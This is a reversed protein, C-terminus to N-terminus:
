LIEIEGKDGDIRVRDGNKLLKTINNVGVVTPKGLERAIIATHSLLSGKEAIIGKASAILFVWGPDTMKTVLIKGKSDIHMTPKDVILVEGEAIGHSCAVGSYKGAGSEFSMECVNSPNKDVVRESFVLRSYAPLASFMNYKLKRENILKKLKLFEGNATEEIEDYYLWFIDDKENILGAISLNKGIQLMLMRMIGYLRSRNLRSKERNKIGIAAKKAFLGSLGRLRKFDINEVSMQINENAYQIIRNILLVPDTRFTKSELKLEEINRDGFIDVYAKISTTFDDNKENSYRYYDENTKIDSLESIRNQSKAAQSINILECIPKLSEIDSIKSIYQSTMIEYNEPNRKKLRSKLLGTFIFSYMDNALTIDWEDTAMKKLSQYYEILKKNDDTDVDFSSYYKAIESFYRNLKDMKRPSSIILSFFSIMVKAQTKFSAKNKLAFSVEKNKVGLMEQWVPTIKKSFPLLRIIDYWNSIRYYVRGNVVDVMNKLIDDIQNVTKEERTLRILLTKFVRYYVERIFSQTLPLTINPYSEIINSNDLVIISANEQLSTIPRSQLIFIQSNKIAFEIDCECKFLAKIGISIEIIEKIKEDTIIPSGGNKEYYYINDSTNYYYATTETKDEVVNEGTGKGIVIVTENLLGQPNATFIVGSYDATIMKQVIVSMRISSIKTNNLKCYEAVSKNESIDAVKSIYSFVEEKKINLYTKFQGAFSFDKGDEASSSSRVSFLETDAFNEDLYATIENESYDANVCFFPPVNHGKKMMLFLNKAKVGVDFNRYNECSIIM